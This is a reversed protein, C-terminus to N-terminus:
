AQGTSSKGHQAVAQALRAFGDPAVVEARAGPDIGAREIEEASLLARLANRLTKRRQAFAAAVVSAYAAPHEVPFPSRDRPTM